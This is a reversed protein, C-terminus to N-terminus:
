IIIAIIDWSCWKGAWGDVRAVVTLYVVDAVGVEADVADASVGVDSFEIVISVSDGGKM